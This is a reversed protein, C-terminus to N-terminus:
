ILVQRQMLYFMIGFYVPNTTEPLVVHVHSYSSVHRNSMSSHESEVDPSSSTSDSCVDDGDVRTCSEDESALIDFHNSVHCM